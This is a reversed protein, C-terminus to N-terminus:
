KYVVFSMRIYAVGGGGKGGSDRGRKAKFDRTRAKLYSFDWMGFFRNFVRQILAQNLPVPQGPKGCKSEKGLEILQIGCYYYM